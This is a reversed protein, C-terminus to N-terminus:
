HSRDTDSAFQRRFKRISRQDLSKRESCEIRTARSFLCRSTTHLANVTTLGAGM